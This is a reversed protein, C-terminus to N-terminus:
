ATEHRPRTALRLGMFGVVLPVLFGADILTVGPDLRHMTRLGVEGAISDWLVGLSAAVLVGSALGLLPRQIGIVEAFIRMVHGLGTASSPLRDRM